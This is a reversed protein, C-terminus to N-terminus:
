AADAQVLQANITLIETALSRYDGALRKASTATSPDIGPERALEAPVMGMQRCKVAVSEVYRIVSELVPAAGRVDKELHERIDRTVRTGSSTIGFLVIGALALGPNHPKAEVFRRAITRLGKRSSEDSRSPVIVMDGAVMAQTQLVLSGPAVDLIIKDYDGDVQAIANAYMYLWSTDGTDRSIRRQIYLEETIDELAEGGPVVWLGPRAEGTPKFGTGDLIAHSQGEGGDYLDTGIFGLDEANNGQPDLEVLLVRHGMRAFVDALAASLSSKGVGGKGNAVVIVKRRRRQVIAPIIPRLVGTDARPRATSTASVHTDGRLLVHLGKMACFRTTESYSVRKNPRVARRM